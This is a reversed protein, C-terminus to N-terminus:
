GARRVQVEDARTRATRHHPRPDAGLGQQPRFQRRHYRLPPHGAQLERAPHKRHRRALPPPVQPGARQHHHLVFMSLPLRPRRRFQLSPRRQPQARDVPLFPVPTQELGPLDHMYNYIPKLRGNAADLLVEDLRGEAEGAYLSIGLDLAEQLDPQVGPLMSLSGSVHFGGIAVAVGAKRLPRAIDLARPYQNSQVGILGVMGFGGAAKIQAAIEAPKVQTNTEDISTIEIDVDDGLM